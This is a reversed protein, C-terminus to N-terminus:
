NDDVDKYWQIRDGMQDRVKWAFSKPEQYLRLMIDKVQTEVKAKQEPTLKDYQAAFQNVKKLNLTTTRWLGWEEACLKSIRRINIVQRDNEGLPYELLLTILCIVDKESIHFIQMKELFLEALPITPSDIHLRDKWFIEHCFDLKDYFVEVRLDGKYFTARQAESLTFIQKNEEYGRATLIERIQKSYNGYSALDIDGYAREAQLYSFQPCRLQFALSGLTRAVVGADECADLISKLENEFKERESRAGEGTINESM